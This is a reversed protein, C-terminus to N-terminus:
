NQFLVFHGLALFYIFVNQQAPSKLMALSATVYKKQRM